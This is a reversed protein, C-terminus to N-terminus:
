APTSGTGTVVTLVEATAEEDEVVVTAVVVDVFGPLTVTVDVDVDVDVLVDVVGALVVVGGLVVCDLVVACTKM